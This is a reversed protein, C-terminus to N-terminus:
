TSQRSSNLRCWSTSTTQSGSGSAAFSVNQRLMAVRGRLDSARAEERGHGHSAAGEGPSRAGFPTKFRTM